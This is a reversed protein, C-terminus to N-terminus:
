FSSSGSVVAPGVPMEPGRCWRRAIGRAAPITHEGLTLTRAAQM